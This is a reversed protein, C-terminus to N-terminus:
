PPPFPRPTRPGEYPNDLAEAVPPGQGASAAPIIMAAGCRPCKAQKGANDASVKLVQQCSSCNFTILDM